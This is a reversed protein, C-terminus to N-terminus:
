RAAVVTILKKIRKGGTPTITVQVVAKRRKKFM